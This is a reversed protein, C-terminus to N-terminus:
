SCSTFTTTGSYWINDFEDGAGPGAAVAVANTGETFGTPVATNNSSNSVSTSFGFPVSSVAFVFTPSASSGTFALVGDGSTSFNMGNSGVIVDDAGTWDGSTWTANTTGSGSIVTGAATNASFTYTAAGEGGRLASTDSLWGSDTFTVSSGATIDNLVVFSISKYATDTGLGIIAIDGLAISARGTTVTALGLAAALLLTKIKM